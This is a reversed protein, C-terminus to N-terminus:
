KRDYMCNWQCNQVVLEQKQNTSIRKRFNSVKDFYSILIIFVCIKHHFLVFFIGFFCERNRVRGVSRHHLMSWVKSLRLFISNTDNQRVFVNWVFMNAYSPAYITELACGKNKRNIAFNNLTLWFHQYLNKLKIKM